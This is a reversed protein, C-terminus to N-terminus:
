QECQQIRKNNLASAVQLIVNLELDFQEPLQLNVNSTRKYIDFRSRHLKFGFYM